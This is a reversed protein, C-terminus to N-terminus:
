GWAGALLPCASERPWQDRSLNIKNRRIRSRNCRRRRWKLNLFSTSAHATSYDAKTDNWEVLLQHRDIETLIALKAISRNRDAIICELLTRFHDAMREITTHDFLDTCYEFFGILHGEREALSLTLDVKSTGNDISIPTSCLEPVVPYAIPMNQFTFMVQFLPNRSLDRDLRLEQVLKEFPLDQHAYAGVCVDRVKLLLERFTPEGLLDTRAVLTNVFFGISGSAEGWNRDAIPFGVIIDEQGTYRYLLTNIAAMLTVFLTVGEQRSLENLAATLSESLEIPIRSGRYSQLAPRPSDIPLSLLPLTGCLREKWYSLQSEIWEESLLQRQWFAFDAYQVSVKPLSPLRNQSIAEYYQWFESLLIRMSWGDCVIQHVTFVLLGEENDLQILLARLLPGHALDFPRRADEQALHLSAENREVEPTTRLDITALSLRLIPAVFQCLQDNEAVFSTRLIEHREIVANISEEIAGVNVGGKLGYALSLNYTAKGPEWQEMFWLREQFYSLPLRRDQLQHLIRSDESIEMAEHTTTIIVSLGAITPSEYFRNLPVDARFTKMVRAVIQM